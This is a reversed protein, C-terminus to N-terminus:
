RRSRRSAAIGRPIALMDFMMARSAHKDFTM